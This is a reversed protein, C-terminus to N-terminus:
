RWQYTVESLLGHLEVLSASAMHGAGVFQGFDPNSRVERMVQLTVTGTKARELATVQLFM